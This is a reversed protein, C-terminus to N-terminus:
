TAVASFECKRAGNLDAIIGTTCRSPAGAKGNKRCSNWDNNRDNNRCSNQRSNHIQVTKRLDTHGNQGIIMQVSGKGGVGFGGHLILNLGGDAGTQFGDAECLMQIQIRGEGIRWLIIGGAIKM